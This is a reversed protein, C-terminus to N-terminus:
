CISSSSQLRHSCRPFQDPSPQFSTLQDDLLDLERSMHSRGKTIEVALKGAYDRIQREFRV